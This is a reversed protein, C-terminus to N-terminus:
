RASIRGCKAVPSKTRASLRLSRQIGPRPGISTAERGIAGFEANESVMSGWQWISGIAESKTQHRRASKGILSSNPFQLAQSQAEEHSMRM